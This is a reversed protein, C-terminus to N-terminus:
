RHSLHNFSAFPQLRLVIRSARPGTQRERRCDNRSLPTALSLSPSERNLRWVCTTLDPARCVHDRALLGSADERPPLKRHPSRLHTPARRSHPTPPPLTFILTCPPTFPTTNSSTSTTTLLAFIPLRSCPRPHRPAYTPPFAHTLPPTFLTLPSTRMGQQGLRHHLAPCSVYQRMSSCYYLLLM